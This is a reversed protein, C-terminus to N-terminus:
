QLRFGQFKSRIGLCSSTSEISTTHFLEAGPEPSFKMTSRRLSQKRQDVRAETVDADKHLIIKAITM